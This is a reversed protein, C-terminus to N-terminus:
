HPSTYSTCSVYNRVFIRMFEPEQPDFQSRPLLFVLHTFPWVPHHDALRNNRIVSGRMTAVALYVVDLLFKAVRMWCHILLRPGTLTITM